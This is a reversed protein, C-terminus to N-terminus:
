YNIFWKPGRPRLSISLLSWLDSRQLLSWPPTQGQFCSGHPASRAFLSWPPPRVKIALVTRTPRVKLALVVSRSRSCQARPDSRLRSCWQGQAHAGSVNLALVVSRSRQAHPHKVRLALVVSRSRSCWQGQVRAGSVKLATRTQGQSRAGSVKLALVVSRSCSCWQGQARAGSVKLALVMSVVDALQLEYQERNQDVRQELLRDGYQVRALAEVAGAFGSKMERM